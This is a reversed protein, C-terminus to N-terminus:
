IRPQESAIRNGAHSSQNWWRSGREKTKCHKTPFFVTLATLLNQTKNFVSSATNNSIKMSGGFDAEIIVERSGASMVM